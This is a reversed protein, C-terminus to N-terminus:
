NPFAAAIQEKQKDNLVPTMHQLFNALEKASVKNIEETYIDVTIYREFLEQNNPNATLEEKVDEPLREVCNAMTKLHNRFEIGKVFNERDEYDLIALIKLLLDKYTHKM